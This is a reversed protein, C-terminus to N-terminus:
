ARRMLALQGSTFLFGRRRLGGGTPRYQWRCHDKGVPRKETMM